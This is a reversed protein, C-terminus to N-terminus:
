LRRLLFHDELFSEDGRELADLCLALEQSARRLTNCLRSAENSGNEDDYAALDEWLDRWIKSRDRLRDIDKPRLVKM